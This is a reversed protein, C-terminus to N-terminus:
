GIISDEPEMTIISVEYAVRAETETGSVQKIYERSQVRGQIRVDTGVEFRAAQKANRGWAICPIYDSKGYPRNVALLMDTIERGKPTKRYVPERCLFGDLGIWNNERGNEPEEELFGIDQVLVSLELRRKGGENRNYSRLQGAASVAQGIYDEGAAMLKESVMLPIVDMYGSARGACIDALYFKEGFIQHSYRLGSVIKGKICVMNNEMRMGSM